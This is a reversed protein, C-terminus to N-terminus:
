RYRVESTAWRARLGDGVQVDATELLHLNIVVTDRADGSLVSFRERLRRWRGVLFTVLGGLVMGIVIGVGRGSLENLLNKFM